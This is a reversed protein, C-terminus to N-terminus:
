NLQNYQPKQFEANRLAERVCQATRQPALADDDAVEPSWWMEEQQQEEQQLEEQKTPSAEAAKAIWLNFSFPM